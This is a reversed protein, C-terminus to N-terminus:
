LTFKYILSFQFSQTSKETEIIGIMGTTLNTIPIDENSRTLLEMWRINFSINKIIECEIGAVSALRFTRFEKGIPTFETTNLLYTVSAGFELKFRQNSVPPILISIPLLLLDVHENPEKNFGVSSSGVREYMLVTRGFIKGFRKEYGIGGHGTIRYFPREPFDPFIQEGDWYENITTISPGGLLIFNHNNQCYIIETLFFTTFLGIM